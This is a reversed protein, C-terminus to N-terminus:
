MFLLSGDLLSPLSIKCLCPSVGFPLGSATTYRMYMSDFGITSPFPCILTATSADAVPIVFIWGAAIAAIDELSLSQHGPIYNTGIVAKFRRKSLSLSRGGVITMPSIVVDTKDPCM